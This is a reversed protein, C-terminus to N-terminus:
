RIMADTWQEIFRKRKLQDLYVLLGPGLRIPQLHPSETVPESQIPPLQAESSLLAKGSGSLLFDIFSGALSQNDSYRPIMATRLMLHTFDLMPIVQTGQNNALRASAYSGFVNYALLIEGSELDDIMQSSCCYLKPSLSGIVEALRWFADSQRVDQTAFLYGAGSVQLDYTGIKGRFRDPNDRLLTILEQRNSPLSLKDMNEISAIVVAPEQSFAFLLDRWKAWSPLKNTEASQYGKGLGDNVLKMQLDMASSIVLDFSAQETNIAKFIEATSAVTYDVTVSPDLLQYQKVLPEFYNLDTSSIITLKNSANANSGSIAAFVKRDEIEYAQVCFSYSFITLTVIATTLKRM